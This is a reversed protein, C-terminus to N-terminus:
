IELRQIKPLRLMTMLIFVNIAERAHDSNSTSALIPIDLNIFDRHPVLRDQIILPAVQEMEVDGRSFFHVPSKEEELLRRPIGHAMVM